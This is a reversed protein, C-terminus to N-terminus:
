NCSVQASAGPALGAGNCRYRGDDRTRCELGAASATTGPSCVGSIRTRGSADATGAGAAAAAAAPAAEGAGAGAGGSCTVSYFDGPTLFRGRCSFGGAADTTCTLGDSSSAGGGANCNGRIRIRGRNDVTGSGAVAATPDAAPPADASVLVGQPATRSNGNLFVSGIEEGGVTVVASTPGAVLPAVEDDRASFVVNLADQVTTGTAPDQFATATGAFTGTVDGSTLSTFTLAFSDVGIEHTVGNGGSADIVAPFLTNEFLARPVNQVIVDFRVVGNAGGVSKNDFVIAAGAASADDVGAGVGPVDAATGTFNATPALEEGLPFVFGAPITVTTPASRVVEIVGKDDIYTAQARIRLAADDVTVVISEGHVIFPDTNQGRGGLRRIDQFFNSGPELESQWVVDIVSQVSGDGANDADVIGSTDATLTEGIDATGIINITGGGISNNACSAGATGETLQVTMDAFLLREFNRILDSGENTPRGLLNAVLVRNDIVSLFGNVSSQVTYDAVNGQYVATDTDSFDGGEEAAECPAADDDWIQRSAYIDGPNIDGSFVENMIDEMGALG